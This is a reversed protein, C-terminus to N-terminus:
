IAIQGRLYTVAHGAIHVRDGALACWLEGGRQSVQKAHLQNKGLRAAWYPTLICHASGTVPDEPIGANPAFFRSVFDLGPEDGPATVICRGPKLQALATQDPELGRVDAAKPFVALWSMPSLNVTEPLQGLARALKEPSQPHGVPRAPFDLKLRQDDAHSVVLPGSRSDFTVESGSLGLERFLVHASALTAHGCLDVETVPTFWRLYYRHEGTRVFFATESLGHQWAWSRGPSRRGLWAELPCVGAPNGGFARRTFVRRGLLILNGRNLPCAPYAPQASGLVPAMAQRLSRGVLTPRPRVGTRHPSFSGLSYIQAFHLRPGRGARRNPSVYLRCATSSVSRSPRVTFATAWSSPSGAQCSYSQRLSYAGRGPSLRGAGCLKASASLSIAPSRASTTRIRSRSVMKFFAMPMSDSGGALPIGLNFRHLALM